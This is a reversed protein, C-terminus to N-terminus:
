NKEFCAKSVYLFESLRGGHQPAGPESYWTPVLGTFVRDITPEVLCADRLREDNSVLTLALTKRLAPLPDADEDLKAAVAWPAPLEMGFPAEFPSECRVVEPAIFHLGDRAVVRAPAPPVTGPKLVPVRAEVELPDVLELASLREALAEILRPEDGRVLIGSTCTCRVGGDMTMSDFLFEATAPVDAPVDVLVKSRGVGNFLVDRQSELTAGV